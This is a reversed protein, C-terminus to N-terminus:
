SEASIGGVHMHDLHKTPLVHRQSQMRRKVLSACPSTGVRFAQIYKQDLGEFHCYLPCRYHSDDSRLSCSAILM